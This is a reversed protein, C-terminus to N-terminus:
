DLLLVKESIAGRSTTLRLFYVGARAAAGGEHKGDWAVRHAGAPLSGDLLTRV